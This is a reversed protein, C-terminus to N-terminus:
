EKGEIVEGYEVFWGVKRIRDVLCRKVGDM